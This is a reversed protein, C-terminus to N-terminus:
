KTANTKKGSPSLFALQVVPSKASASTISYRICFAPRFLLISFVAHLPAEQNANKVPYYETNWTLSFSFQPAHKTPFDLSFVCSPLCLHLHTQFYFFFYCSKLFCEKKLVWKTLYKTVAWGMQELCTSSHHKFYFCLCRSQVYRGTLESMVIYHCLRSLEYSFSFFTEQPIIFFGPKVM